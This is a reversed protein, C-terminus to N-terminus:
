FYTFIKYGFVYVECILGITIYLIGLPVNATADANWEEYSKLSCNKSYIRYWEQHNFIFTWFGM